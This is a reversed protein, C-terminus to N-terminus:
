ENSLYYLRCVELTEYDVAGGIELFVPKLYETSHKKFAATIARLLDDDAPLLPRLGDAKINYGEQVYKYLNSLITKIKIGETEEMEAVSIGSNYIEGIQIHRPTKLYERPKQEVPAIMEETIDKGSCYERVVAIIDDGYKQLKNSGIGHIQILSEHNQPYASAIAMLTKDSFIIYPPVNEEAALKRRKERLLEFLEMDYDDGAAASKKEPKSEILTGAIIEEGKMVRYGKDTIKLEGFSEMDQVLLGNRIFQRGLSQWSSKSIDKGIGYTSLASHQFDEIKKSKSGRLIDIIHGAGFREGTRKICSLFMQAQVTIDDNMAPPSICNDCMGCNGASYEEGFYTILPIRRCSTSDAYDTMASLQAEAARRETEDTKEKIFHRIKHVDSYSYLLLCTSKVGDRGARGTEQYYAEISKPLDFHIVFRVNTKHIGMGFAITAVIIQVEDKLFLEQNERREQDSLGAHYPKVSYGHKKLSLYLRDVSDRSFAYIIGSENKHEDLFDLTQQLPNNKPTVRYVLNERNFSAIFTSSVKLELSKRIDERVRETATATLAICVAGPLRKRVQAIMRYEPRFDHGWESICHAEDIAFCDVQVSTLLALIENKLLTEPAVYLLKAKRNRILNMNETYEDRALSSNLLLAEIGLHKMQDVQDKMLSILPSVVVTLGEFILSPVQYCISKGGGTPMIVLADKKNLVSTIIEEQLPRFTDYGFINKLVAAADSTFDRSM